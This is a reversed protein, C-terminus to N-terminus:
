LQFKKTSSKHAWFDFLSYPLFLGLWSRPGLGSYLGLRNCLGLKSILGIRIKWNGWFHVTQCIGALNWGLCGLSWAQLLGEQVQVERRLGPHPRPSSRVKGLGVLNPANKFKQKYLKGQFAGNPSWPGGSASSPRKRGLLPPHTPPPPPPVLAFMHTSKEPISTTMRALNWGRHDFATAGRRSLCVCVYAIVM